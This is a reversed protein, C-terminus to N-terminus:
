DPQYSNRAIEGKRHGNGERYILSLGLKGTAEVRDLTADITVCQKNM